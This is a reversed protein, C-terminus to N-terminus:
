TSKKLHLMPFGKPKPAVSMKKPALEDHPTPPYSSESSCKIYPAAFSVVVIKRAKAKM